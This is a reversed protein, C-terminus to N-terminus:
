QVVAWGDMALTSRHIDSSQAHLQQPHSSPLSIEGKRRRKREEGRRERERGGGKDRREERRGGGWEWLRKSKNSGLNWTGITGWIPIFTQGLIHLDEFLCSLSNPRVKWEHLGCLEWVGSESVGVRRTELAGVSFWELKKKFVLYTPPTRYRLRM